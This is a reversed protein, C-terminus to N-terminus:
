RRDPPQRSRTRCGVNCAVNIVTIAIWVVILAV